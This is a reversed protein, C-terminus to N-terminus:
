DTSHVVLDGLTSILWRRCEIDVSFWGGYTWYVARPTNKALTGVIPYNVGPGTRQNQRLGTNREDLYIYDMGKIPAAGPLWLCDEPHHTSTIAPTPLMTPTGRIATPTASGDIPTPSVVMQQTATIVVPTACPCIPEGGGTQPAVPMITQVIGLGLMAILLSTIVYGWNKM